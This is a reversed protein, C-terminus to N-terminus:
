NSLPAYRFFKKWVRSYLTSLAYSLAVLVVYQWWGGINFDPTAWDAILPGAVAWILMAFIGAMTAYPRERGGQTAPWATTIAYDQMLGAPVAMIALAILFGQWNMTMGSLIAACIVLAVADSVVPNMFTATRYPYPKV